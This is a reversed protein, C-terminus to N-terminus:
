FSLIEGRVRIKHVAEAPITRYGRAQMDYVTLLGKSEPDYAGGTGVLGARVGCRAVMLRDTGDTRKTFVVSFIKGDSTLKKLTSLDM